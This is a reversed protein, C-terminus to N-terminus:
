PRFLIRGFSATVHFDAPDKLTPSWASYEDGGPHRDIRYFNAWWTEDPEPVDRGLSAFPIRILTDVRAPKPAAMLRRIAVFLGECNWARDAKMTQRIGGLSEIRADFVTALPSAEIEYYISPTVPALFAEVVDEDYIPDDHGTLTAVVQEDDVASFLVNLCRRDYYVAVTTALRPASGDTSLRLPHADAASPTRWPDEISFEGRVVPIVDAPM